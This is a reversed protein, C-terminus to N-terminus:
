LVCGCCRSAVFVARERVWVIDGGPALHFRSVGGEGTNHSFSGLRAATNLATIANDSLAGYSMGSVNLLSSSYRHEPAVGPGGFLVRGEGAPVHHPSM